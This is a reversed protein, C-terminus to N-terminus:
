GRPLQLFQPQLQPAGPAVPPAIPQPTAPPALPSVPATAPAERTLDEREIGGRGMPTPAASGEALWPRLNRRVQFELEVNLDDMAQRLIEEAARRREAPTAGDPLSRQRRVEAEIFGVRRGDGGMVELRAQLRTTLREGPDGSFMGVLGGQGALAERRFEATQVMFRAHNESGEAMLRDEAMRVMEREPRFPASADVRITAPGPNMVEVDRVNLRIPTLHRYGSVLPAMPEPEPERSACAAAAFPLALLLTRRALMM